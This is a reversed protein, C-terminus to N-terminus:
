NFIERIKKLMESDESFISAGYDDDLIIEFFGSRWRCKKVLSYPLVETQEMSIDLVSSLKEIIADFIQSEDIREYNKFYIHDSLNDRNAIQLDIM